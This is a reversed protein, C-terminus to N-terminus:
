QLWTMVTGLVLFLIVGRPQLCKEKSSGNPTSSSQTAGTHSALPPATTQGGGGGFFTSTTTGTGFGSLDTSSTRPSPTSSAAGSTGGASKVGTYSANWSSLEAEISAPIPALPISHKSCVSIGFTSADLIITDSSNFAFQCWGCAQDAAWYGNQCECVELTDFDIPQTSPGNAARCGRYISLELDCIAGVGYCYSIMENNIDLSSGSTTAAKKELRREHALRRLNEHMPLIPAPTIMPDLIATATTQLLILWSIFVRIFM